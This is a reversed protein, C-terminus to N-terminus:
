RMKIAAMMAHFNAPPSQFAMSRYAGQQRRHAVGGDGAGFREVGISFLASFGERVTTVAAGRRRNLLGTGMSVHM